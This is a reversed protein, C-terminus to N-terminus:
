SWVLDTQLQICEIIILILKLMTLHWTPDFSARAPSMKNVVANRCIVLLAPLADLNILGQVEGTKNNEACDTVDLGLADFVRKDSVTSINLESWSSHDNGVSPKNAPYFTITTMVDGKITCYWM